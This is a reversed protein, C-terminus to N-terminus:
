RGRAAVPTRNAKSRRGGPAPQAPEIAADSDANELSVAEGEELHPLAPHEPHAALWEDVLKEVLRSRRLSSRIFSRGRESEFYAMTKRDNGYRQRATRVEAEVDRDSIELGEDEAIKSLVLLVKV